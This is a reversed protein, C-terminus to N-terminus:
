AFPLRAAWQETVLIDAFLVEFGEVDVSWRPLRRGPDDGIAVPEGFRAVSGRFWGPEVGLFLFSTSSDALWWVRLLM